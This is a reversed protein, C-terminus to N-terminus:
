LWINKLVQFVQPQFKLNVFTVLVVITVAQKKACPTFYSWVPSFKPDRKKTIFTSPTLDQTDM